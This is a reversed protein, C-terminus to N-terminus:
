NKVQTAEPSNPFRTTLTDLTAAARTTDGLKKYASAAGWLAAPMKAEESSYFVPVRLYSLLAEETRGAKELLKGKTIAIAALGSDDTVTATFKDLRATAVATKGSAVLQNIIAAEGQSIDAPAAKARRMQELLVDADMDKGLQALAVTKIAAGQTWWSGPVERFPAQDALVENIKKLADAPKGDKLDNEAQAVSAPAPWDIRILTSIPLTLTATGGDGSLKLPVLINPVKIQAEPLSAKRGDSFYFTQSRATGAVVAHLLTLTLLLSLSRSM